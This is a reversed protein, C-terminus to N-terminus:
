FRSLNKLIWPVFHMKEFIFIFYLESFFKAGTSRPIFYLFPVSRGSGTVSQSVPRARMSVVRHSRGICAFEGHQRRGSGMIKDTFWQTILGVRRSRCLQRRLLFFLFSLFCPNRRSHNPKARLSPQSLIFPVHTCQYDGEWSCQAVRQLVESLNCYFVSLSPFVLSFFFFFLVSIKPSLSSSPPIFQSPHHRAARPNQTPSCAPLFRSPVSIPWTVLDGRSLANSKGGRPRGEGIRGGGEHRMVIGATPTRIRYSSPSSMDGRNCSRCVVVAKKNVDDWKM